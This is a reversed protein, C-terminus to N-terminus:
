CFEMPWRFLCFVLFFLSPFLKIKEQLLSPKWLIIWESHKWPVFNKKKEGQLDMIEMFLLRLNGSQWFIGTILCLVAWPVLKVNGFILGKAQVSLASCKIKLIEKGMCAYPGQFLSYSQVCGDLHECFLPYVIQTVWAFPFLVDICRNVSLSIEGLLLM